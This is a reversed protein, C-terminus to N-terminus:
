LRGQGDRVSAGNDCSAEQRWQRLLNEGLVLIWYLREGFSPESPM